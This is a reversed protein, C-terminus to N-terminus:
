SSPAPPAPPVTIVAPIVPPEEVAATHVYAVDPYIHAAQPRTANTVIAAKHSSRHTWQTVLQVIAAIALGAPGAVEQVVTPTNSPLGIHFTALIGVVFSAISVLYSTVAPGDTWTPLKPVVPEPASM